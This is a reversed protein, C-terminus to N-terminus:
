RDEGEGEVHYLIKKKKGKVSTFNSRKGTKEVGGGEKRTVIIISDGKRGNTSLLALSLITFTGEEGM